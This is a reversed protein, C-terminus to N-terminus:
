GDSIDILSLPCEISLLFAGFTGVLVEEFYERRCARILHRDFSIDILIHLRCRYEIYPYCAGSAHEFSVHEIGLDILFGAKLSLGECESGVVDRIDSPIEAVSRHFLSLSQGISM